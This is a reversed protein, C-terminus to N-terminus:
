VTLPNFVNKKFVGLTKDVALVYKEHELKGPIGKSFASSSFEDFSCQSLSAFMYLIAVFVIYYFTLPSIPLTGNLLNRVINSTAASSSVPQYAETSVEKANSVFHPLSFPHLKIV